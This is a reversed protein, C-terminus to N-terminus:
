ATAKKIFKWAWHYHSSTASILYAGLFTSGTWPYYKKKFLEEDSHQQIIKCIQEHSEILLKKAKTLSTKQYNEWIWRNLAPTTRWTYGEAPM